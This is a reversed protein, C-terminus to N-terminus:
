AFHARAVRSSADSPWRNLASAISLLVIGNHENKAMVELVDSSPLVSFTVDGFIRNRTKTTVISNEPWSDSLLRVAWCRIWPDKDVLLGVMDDRLLRGCSYLTWLANLRRITPLKASTDANLTEVAVPDM